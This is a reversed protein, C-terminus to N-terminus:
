SAPEIVPQQKLLQAVVSKTKNQPFYKKWLIGLFLTHSLHNSRPSSLKKTKFLQLQSLNPMPKVSM